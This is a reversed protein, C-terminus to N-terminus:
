NIVEILYGTGSSKEFTAEMLQEDRVQQMAKEAAEAELQAAEAAQAQVLLSRIQLLQMAQQSLLQNAYQLAQMRGEADEAEAQLEELREADKQLQTQQQEIGKLLADNANKQATSGEAILENYEEKCGGAQYCASTRYWRVDQYKELYDELSGSTENYYTITDIIDIVDDILENAEDWLYVSPALTNKLQDEYQELQKDYEEIQKLTQNVSEIATITTQTMNAADIVPIGTAFTAYPWLTLWLLPIFLARM